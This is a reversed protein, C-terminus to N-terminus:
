QPRYPVRRTPPAVQTDAEPSALRRELQSFAEVIQPAEFARNRRGVTVPHLIGTSVLREFANNTAEFSRGIAAAAGGVTMIPTATLVPLLLDTASGRRFRGLRESWGAQIDRIRDEYAVADAVARTCAAAFIGIWRNMGAHAEPAEAPGLYRTAVLGNVYEASRTALILSIPPVVRPAVARRRLIVHILARGTRGNGDVFPHITEFQAHAIAAQAVAPLDDTSSFDCLDALLDDLEEPPPPVFAAGCPNSGSGGIWNQETRILGAYASLRTGELLRRHIELLDAVTVRDRVAVETVAWNMAEINRLVEEATVDVKSEGLGRAAEARLLRRAGVELGEIRSSAVAEARLLLRAIGETNVLALSTTNLERIAAESDSVDAAVSGDLLIRRDVIPDPIYANYNCGRRDARTGGSPSPSWRRSVQIAM